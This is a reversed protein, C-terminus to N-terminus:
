IREGISPTTISRVTSAPWVTAALMVAGFSNVM